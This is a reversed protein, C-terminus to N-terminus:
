EADIVPATLQAPQVVGGIALGINIVPANSGGQIQQPRDIGQSVLRVAQEQEDTTEIHEALWRATQMDGGKTAAKVLAKAIPVAQGELYAKARSVKQWRLHQRPNGTPKDTVQRSPLSSRQPM